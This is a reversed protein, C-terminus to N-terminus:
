KGESEKNQKGERESVLIWPQPKTRPERRKLLDNRRRRDAKSSTQVPLHDKETNGICRPVAVADFLGFWSLVTFDDESAIFEEALLFIGTM